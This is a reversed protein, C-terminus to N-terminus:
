SEDEEADATDAGAKAPPIPIIGKGKYETGGHARPGLIRRGYGNEPDAGRRLARDVAIEGRNYAIVGLRVADAGHEEYREIMERLYGFGLRMNTRPDILEKRTDIEPNIDRATGPMMQVLGTAGGAGIADPDFVSEVRVLRFGLEPDLGVEMAADHVMRPQAQEDDIGFLPLRARQRPLDLLAGDLAAGGADGVQGGVHQRRERGREGAAGVKLLAHIRELVGDLLVGAAAASRWSAGM